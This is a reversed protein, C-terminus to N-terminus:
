HQVRQMLLQPEVSEVAAIARLRSVGTLAEAISGSRTRLWAAEPAYDLEQAIAYGAQELEARHAAVTEGQRFRIFLQGIPIALSEGGKPAYVPSIAQTPGLPASPSGLLVAIREPEFMLVAKATPLPEGHLALYGPKQEVVLAKSGGLSIQRPFGDFLANAQSVDCAGLLLAVLCLGPLSRTIGLL